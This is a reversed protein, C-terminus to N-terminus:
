FFEPCGIRGTPSKGRYGRMSGQTRMEVIVSIEHTGGAGSLKNIIYDYSYFIKLRSDDSFPSQVGVLLVMANINSLNIDENRYWAGLYVFSKYGNLGVSFTNAGNQNEFMLGPNIKAEESAQTRYNSSNSRELYIVMDTHGVFKMNLQSETNVFGIKPQFFHHLSGGIRINLNDNSNNLHLISGVNFDPYVASSRIPETFNTPYVNGYKGDLQDPFVLGDWDIKKQALASTIGFQLIRNEKASALRVSLMLGAYLNRVMGEGENNSHVIMGLGGSGPANRASVDFAVNYSRFDYPLKTWQNRYNFYTRVGDYLGTYAPNYYLGNNFFQSYNQDQSRLGNVAAIIAITSIFIKTKM